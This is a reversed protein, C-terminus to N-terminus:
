LHQGRQGQVLGGQRGSTPWGGAQDSDVRLLRQHSVTVALAPEHRHNNGTRFWGPMAKILTPKGYLRVSGDAIASSWGSLGKAIPYLDDADAEVYLYRELGLGPDEHCISPPRDPLALPEVCNSLWFTIVNPDRLALAPDEPVWRRAWSDLSLLTPVLQEGAPALRYPARRTDVFPDRMIVGLEELMRLRRALVSRAVGPLGDALANFGRSGYM